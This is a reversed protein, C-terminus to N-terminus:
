LQAVQRKHLFEYSTCTRACILSCVAGECTCALVHGHGCECLRAGWTLGSCFRVSASFVRLRVLCVGTPFTTALGRPSSSVVPAHKIKVTLSDCRGNQQAVAPCTCACNRRGMSDSTASFRRKSVDLIMSRMYAHRDNMPIGKMWQLHQIGHRMLASKRLM